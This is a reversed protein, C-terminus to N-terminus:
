DHVVTGIVRRYQEPDHERLHGVYERALAQIEAARHDAAWLVFDLLAEQEDTM